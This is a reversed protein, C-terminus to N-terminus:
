FRRILFVGIGLFVAGLLRQWSLSKQAYGLLGFHDLVLSIGIQGALVLAIMTAAGLRPAALVTVTVLYAGLFGGMWHWPVIKGPLPPIPTRTILVCFLLGLTGVAFSVLAALIPSQAWHSQLQANIGAQVSMTAGALITLFSLFLLDM